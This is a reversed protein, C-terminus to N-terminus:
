EKDKLEINAKTTGALMSVVEVEVGARGKGNLIYRVEKMGGSGEIPGLMTRRSGSLVSADDLKLVVRTPNVERTVVGQAMVTPLYGTNEVEVTVDYISNGLHKVRIKRIGIQPLKGALQTLFGAQRRANDELLREPPNSRAFPAFGGIEVKKGPFDPHEWAKWPVFAEPWNQNAWKLFARDEENRKDDEPKANPPGKKGSTEPPKAEKKLDSNSPTKEAAPKEEPKAEKAKSL